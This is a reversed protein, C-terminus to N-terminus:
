VYILEVYKKSDQYTNKDIFNMELNYLKAITFENNINAYKCQLNYNNWILIKKEDTLIRNMQILHNKRNIEGSDIRLNDDHEIFNFSNINIYKKELMKDLRNYIDSDDWGYTTINENYGNIKQLNQYKCFLKGNIQLENDTKADKWNGCYFINDTLKHNAILDANVIDECDLKYINEYSACNIALNFAKSLNWKTANTVRYIKIRNDKIHKLSEAVPKKSTWDIIVIENLEKVNLWSNIVIELFDNRNMCATIISNGNKIKSNFFNANLMSSRIKFNNEFDNSFINNKKNENSQFYTVIESYSSWFSGYFKKCKSLLIIDALAYEIQSLSRDYINRELFIFKDRGYIRVLKDYNEQLDTAIYFKQSANKHLENNIQNIFNDIHSVDRWKHMLDIECKAWNEDKDAELSQHNKGGEMRIHMGIMYSTDYQEIKDAVNKTFKIIKFFEDFHDFNNKSNLICNSKVYIKNYEMTDIYENKVGGEKEYYNYCKIDDSLIVDNNICKECLDTINAIIDTINCDCHCDPIWVILLKRGTSKCISYASALARLRNGLGFICNVALFNDYKNLINNNNCTTIM